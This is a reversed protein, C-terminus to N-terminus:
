CKPVIFEFAGFAMTALSFLGEPGGFATIAKHLSLPFVGFAMAAKSFRGRSTTKQPPNELNANGSPAKRTPLRVPATLGQKHRRPTAIRPRESRNRALLLWQASNVAM